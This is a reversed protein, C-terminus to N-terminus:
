EKPEYNKGKPGCDGGYRENCCLYDTQIYKGTVVDLYPKSSCRDEDKHVNQRIFHRKCNICFKDTIPEEKFEVTTVTSVYPTASYNIDPFKKKGINFFSNNWFM